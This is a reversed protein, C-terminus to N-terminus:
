DTPGTRPEEGGLHRIVERAVDHARDRALAHDGGPVVVLRADPLLEALRAGVAPPSIPDADGWVLLIPHRIRPLRETLDIHVHRIWPLAAPFERVYEPRWDAVGFPTLDLGGSTATLVLRRVREPHDLALLLAVLGGMSQAVVDAPAEGARRLALEVLHDVGRVSPDHPVHGLGPWSLLVTAWADPMLDAVPQWFRGDGGAGPLFLLRRRQATGASRAAQRRATASHGTMASDDYM